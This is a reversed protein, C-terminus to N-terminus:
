NATQAEFAMPSRYGLKSHLRSRNYFHDIYDAIDSHAAHQDPYRQLNTRETKLNLFFREAVANDWCDGKRSMSCQIKHAALLAQYPGSAYQCGRDSHLLLGPGPRRQRLAMTLAASVLTVHTTASTAWGVVRRSYLDLVIALYLWGRGTPIYTIDAVWARNPEPVTFRRQLHNAAIPSTHNSATTVVFRRKWHPRLHNQQMLTRARHRGMRLGHATVAQAIRRSGYTSGSAQFASRVYVQERLARPSATRTRRAYYGSRSVGLVRCIHSVTFAKEQLHAVLGLSV